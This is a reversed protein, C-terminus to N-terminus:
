KPRFAAALQGVLTAFPLDLATYVDHAAPNANDGLLEVGITAYDSLVVGAQTMRLLGTQYKAESFTGSADVAVFTEFGDALASIAPFAACVELSVGAILLQRRGTKRVADRVREDRWANIVTREITQHGAPLEAVLEPIVPGWQNRIGTATTVIPVGLRKVARTLAVVNHKLEGVPRDRVGTYLGVQQDVLLLVANEASLLRQFSRAPDTAGLAQPAGLAVAGTAAAMGLLGRRTVDTM